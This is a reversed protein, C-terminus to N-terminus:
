GKVRRPRPMTHLSREINRVAKRFFALRAPPSPPGSELYAAIDNKVRRLNQQAEFYARADRPASRPTARAYDEILAMQALRDSEPWGDWPDILNM